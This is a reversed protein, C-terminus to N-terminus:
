ECNKEKNEIRKEKTWVVESEIVKEKM